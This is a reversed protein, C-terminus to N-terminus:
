QISHRRAKFYVCYCGINSYAITTYTTYIVVVDVPAGIYTSRTDISSINTADATLVFQVAPVYEVFPPASQRWHTAPVYESVVSAEEHLDHAVPLYEAAM